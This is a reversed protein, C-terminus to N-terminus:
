KTEVFVAASSSCSCCCCAVGVVLPDLSQERHIIEGFGELRDAFETYESSKTIQSEFM